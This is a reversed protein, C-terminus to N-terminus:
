YNIMTTNTIATLYADATAGTGHIRREDDTAVVLLPTGDVVLADTSVTGAVTVVKSIDTIRDANGSWSITAIGDIDFDISAENLVVKELKYCIKNADGLEFYM